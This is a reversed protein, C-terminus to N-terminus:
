ARRDAAVRVSTYWGLFFVLLNIVGMMLFPATPAIRDFLVGGALVCVTIGLGGFIQYWGIITGRTEPPAEQGVLIGCFVIAGVEAFGLLICCPVIIKM